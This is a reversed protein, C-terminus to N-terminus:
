FGGTYSRSTVLYDGTEPREQLYVYLNDSTNAYLKGLHSNTHMDQLKLEKFQRSTITDGAVFDKTKELKPFDPLTDLPDQEDEKAIPEETEVNM